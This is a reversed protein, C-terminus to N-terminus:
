CLGIICFAIHKKEQYKFTILLNIPELGSHCKGTNRYAKSHFNLVNAHPIHWKVSCYTNLRNRFAPM